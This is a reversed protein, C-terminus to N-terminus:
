FRATPKLEPWTTTFHCRDCQLSFQGDHIDDKRHCSYCSQRMEGRKLPQTHCAGCEVMKHAGDLMFKTRTDHDFDWYKWNRPDHCLHCNSSLNLKHVDDKKHCAYCELPADKFAQTKHCKKCEVDRHKGLLPFRALGHDFMVKKWSRENHCKGCKRGEQGKHKDDKKHCAYCTSKLKTKYLNGKHCSECKVKRHKGLLPYKTDRDHKFLIIKWSKELHCAQCKKGFRGKHKDDKKHCALCTSQLTQKYLHGTHCKKCNAKRHKGRLPFKTHRAHDFIQHKWNKATHCTHCKKGFEGKHKDDGRHCAYCTTPTKTKAVPRKHCSECKTTAHRGRLPYKTHKNHNFTVVKWGDITHCGKCKKGFVGNHYDDKKHCSYCDRPTGKFRQIKHCDDCAVTQHKGILPFRTKSHNFKIKKWKEETHCNACNPGLTGRHKDDKKHCANCALPAHRYKVRPLHCNACKVKSHEGNLAFDTRSHDFLHQDFKAIRATRGKHETHCARCEGLKRTRGHFGRKQKIDTAVKKHCSQCLQTQAAKNFPEHCRECQEEYKAHGKIVNGPMLATELTSSWAPSNVFGITLCTLSVFIFYQGYIRKM